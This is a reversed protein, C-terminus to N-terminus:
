DDYESYVYWRGEIHRFVEYSNTHNPRYSLANTVVSVPPVELYCIGHSAGGTALGKTSRVFFIGPRTPYAIFGRRCGIRRLLRRYQAIREKSVGVGSPDRPETWDEDVRYLKKDSSIMEVLDHFVERHRYFDQVLAEDTAPARGCGGLACLVVALGCHLFMSFRRRLRLPMLKVGFSIM